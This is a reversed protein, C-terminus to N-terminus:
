KLTLPVYVALLYRAVPTFLLSLVLLLVDIFVANVVQLFLIALPLATRRLCFTLPPPPTRERLRLFCGGDRVEGADVRDKGDCVVLM